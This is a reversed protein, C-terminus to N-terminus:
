EGWQKMLEQQEIMGALEAEFMKDELKRGYDKDGPKPVRAPAQYTFAPSEKYAYIVADIIDSHYRDSLVIKDERCKDKDVEVLRSDQVFRSDRRAKMVGTRLSDNLFAVTEQKRTKDAPQVPIHHRRRIEEAIKKGLGGQDIVMKSVPYKANWKQVMEVLGTIDQKTIIEEDVLYTIPSADSWALIAVADADDHGIDIGMIYHWQKHAPLEPLSDFDGKEQVYRVWLSTTDIVWRGFYERQISPDDITVGRRRMVRDLAHQHTKGSKIPIWPNDFFTWHHKSWQSSEGETGQVVGACEAFYGTPLASPTGIMCLTGNYDMLAADLVDEILDRIYERFSQCEDIYVLKFPMGRFNEIESADKAGSLYIISGNPYRISLDTENAHGGLKYTSNIKLIERWVLKKANNKSLTIYLCLCDPTKLAVDILHAACAITKGARRSCVALKFSAPDNVFDLQQKFLFKTIDFVGLPNAKVKAANAKGGLAAFEPTGFKPKAPPPSAKPLDESM